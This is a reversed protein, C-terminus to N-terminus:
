ARWRKKYDNLYAAVRKFYTVYDSINAGKELDQVVELIESLYGLGQSSDAMYEIISNTFSNMEDYVVRSSSEQLQGSEILDGKEILYTNGKEDFVKQGEKLKIM